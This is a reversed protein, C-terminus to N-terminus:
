PARHEDPRQESPADSAASWVTVPHSTPRKSKATHQEVLLAPDPPDDHGTHAFLEPRQLSVFMPVGVGLVIAAIVICRILMKSNAVLMRTAGNWRLLPSYEAQMASARKRSAPTTWTETGAVPARVDDVWMWVGDPCGADVAAM